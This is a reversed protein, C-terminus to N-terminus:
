FIAMLLLGISNVATAAQEGWVTGAVAGMAAWATRNDFFAKLKEM